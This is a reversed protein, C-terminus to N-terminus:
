VWGERVDRQDCLVTIKRHEDDYTVLADAGADYFCRKTSAQGILEPMMVQEKAAEVKLRKRTFFM